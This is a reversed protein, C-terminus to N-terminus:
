GASEQKQNETRKKQVEEEVDPPFARAFQVKAWAKLNEDGLSWLDVFFNIIHELDPDRNKSDVRHQLKNHTVNDMILLNIGPINQIAEMFRQEGINDIQGKIILEPSLFMEGEGAILWLMTTNYLSCIHKLLSESPERVGKEIQSLHQQTIGLDRAMKAQTLNLVKRLAKFREGM